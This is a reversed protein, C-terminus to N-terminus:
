DVLKNRFAYSVLGMSSRVELKNILNRRHTNVTSEKISLQKSIEPTNFEKAILKLIELERSTLKIPEEEPKDKGLRRQELIREQIREGIYCGGNHVRKIAEVLEERGKNKLIYGQCGADLLEDIYDYQDHMSLILVKTESKAHILRTAEMGNMIPMSIDLVAVDVENTTIYDVAEQGNEVCAVVEIGDEESLISKLGDIVIEHDDALLVKIM